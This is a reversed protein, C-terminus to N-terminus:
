RPGGGTTAAQEGTIVRGETLTVVRDAAARVEPDHTILVMGLGATHRLETLLELVSDRTETDLASTVEDCVLVRPSAALARALSVRQREGGSLEHPLRGLLVPSLGVRELLRVAEEELVGNGGEALPRLLARRVSERPNLAAVSDQAVLQLARRQARTRRRFDAPVPAGALRLEGSWSPHLGLLCRAVTSKGAGSPGVLATCGGARVTLSVGEVAVRRGHTARLGDLELLPPGAPEPPSALRPTPRPMTDSRRRPELRGEETRLVRDALAEILQRDHSVLLMAGGAQRHRESLRATLDEALGPDLGSTPEDLVLLRPDGITAVALALRQAQGGSVQHPYRRLFAPDTPLEVENLAARIRREREARDPVRRGSPVVLAAAERLTSGLRRAPNLASAPDQGLFGVLRGRVRSRGAPTFPDFGAVRVSGSRLTLGERVRGLLSLALTTKGSGSRGVLALVEGTRLTLDVGDLVPREGVGREVVLGRVEALVTSGTTPKM